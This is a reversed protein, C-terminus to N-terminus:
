RPKIIQDINNRKTQDLLYDKLLNELNINNKLNLLNKVIVVVKEIDEFDLDLGDSKYDNIKEFGENYTKPFLENFKKNLNKIELVCINLSNIREDEFNSM